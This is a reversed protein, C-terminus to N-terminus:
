YLISLSFYIILFHFRAPCLGATGPRGEIGPLGRKGPLGLRGPDGKQGPIGDQSRVGIYIVFVYM